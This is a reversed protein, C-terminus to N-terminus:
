HTATVSTVVTRMTWLFQEQLITITKTHPIFNPKM